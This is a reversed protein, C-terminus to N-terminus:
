ITMTAASIVTSGCGTCRADGGCRTVASSRSPQERDRLGVVCASCGTCAQLDIAMAWHHIPFQHDPPWLEGEFHHQETAGAHRDATFAALSTSEIIPRSPGSEPARGAPVETRGYIQTLALPRQGVGRTVQVGSRTYHLTGAQWALWPAANRGVMGDENVSPTAAYWDHGLDAFRATGQRGYGLAVAVTQEAQGPVICVPLSLVQGDVAIEVLDGDAVGLQVASAEALCAVNDWTVKTIPDPLEQLWPNEAHRGDLMAVTPYLVLEWGAASRARPATTAAAANWRQVAPRRHGLAAFGRALSQDWFEQFGEADPGTVWSGSRTRDPEGSVTRPRDRLSRPHVSARWWAVIQERAPQPRGLWVALSELLPRTDGFPQLAPQSLTAVGEVPEAEAWTELYHPAACVIAAATATEDLSEASVVLLPVKALAQADPLDYLPNCGAVFLADLRQAALDDLLERLAADDGLRQYSRSLLDLTAGYNALLENLTNTLVQDAPDNSGCVVLSRGRHDWLDAALAPLWEPADTPPTLNPLRVGALGAV